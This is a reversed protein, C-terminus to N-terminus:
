VIMEQLQVFIFILSVQQTLVSFILQRRYKTAPGYSFNVHDLLTNIHDYQVWLNMTETIYDIKTHDHMTDLRNNTIVYPKGTDALIEYGSRSRSSTSDSHQNEDQSSMLDCCERSTSLNMTFFLDRLGELENPLQGMANFHYVILTVFSISFFLALVAELYYHASWGIAGILIYFTLLLGNALISFYTSFSFLTNIDDIAEKIDMLMTTIKKFRFQSFKVSSMSNHQQQHTSVGSRIPMKAVNLEPWDLAVRSVLNLQSETMRNLVNENTWEHIHQAFNLSIYSALEFPVFSLSNLIIVCVMSLILIMTKLWLNADYFTHIILVTPMPGSLFLISHHFSFIKMALRIQWDANVNILGYKIVVTHLKDRYHLLSLLSTVQGFLYLIPSLRFCISTLFYANIYGFRQSSLVKDVTFYSLTLVIVIFLILCTYVISVTKPSLFKGNARTLVIWVAWSCTLTHMKGLLVTGSSMTKAANAICNSERVNEEKNKTTKTAFLGSSLKALILLSIICQKADNWYNKFTYRMYLNKNHQRSRLQDSTTTTTITSNIEDAESLNDKNCDSFLTQEEPFMKIKTLNDVTTITMDPRFSSNEHENCHNYIKWKGFIPRLFRALNLKSNQM